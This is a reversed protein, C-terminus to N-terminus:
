ADASADDRDNGVLRAGEAHVREELLDADVRRDALAVGRDVLLQQEAIELGRIALDQLLADGLSSGGCGEGSRPGAVRNVALRHDGEVDEIRHEAELAGAVLQPGEAIGAAAPEQHAGGGPA